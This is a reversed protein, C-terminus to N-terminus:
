FPFWPSNFFRTFWGAANADALTGTGAYTIQADAVQTSFISNDPRIDDPRVIGELQVFERGQNLTLTKEGRVHLYGNAYVDVVIATISGRLSNSQDSTGTGSFEREGAIQTNFNWDRRGMNVTQNLLTPNPLSVSNSKDFSTGASKSANTNEVLQITLVDGVSRAKRDSFLAMQRTPGTSRSVQFIAGNLQAPPPEHVPAVTPMVPTFTHQNMTSACASLTMVCILTGGRQGLQHLFSIM